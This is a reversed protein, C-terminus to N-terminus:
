RKLHSQTHHYMETHTQCRTMSFTVSASATPIIAGDDYFTRNSQFLRDYIDTHIIPAHCYPTIRVMQHISYLRQSQIKLRFLLWLLRRPCGRSVLGHTHKALSVFYRLTSKCFPKRKLPNLLVDWCKTAIGFFDCHLATTFHRGARQRPNLHPSDAPPMETENCINYSPPLVPPRNRPANM